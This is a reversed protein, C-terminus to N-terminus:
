WLSTDLIVLKGTIKSIGLNGAKIEVEPIGLFVATSLIKAFEENKAMRKAIELTNGAQKAQPKPSQPAQTKTTDKMLPPMTPSYDVTTVDDVVNKETNKYTDEIEKLLAALFGGETNDINKRTFYDYVISRANKFDDISKIIDPTLGIRKFLESYKIPDVKESLIWSMDSAKEFTRPFMEIYRMQMKLDSEYENAKLKDSKKFGHVDPSDLDAQDDEPINIVKLVLDDGVNFVLRTSGSGIPNGFYSKAATVPNMGAEVDKKFSVFADGFYEINEKIFRNWNEFLKKM